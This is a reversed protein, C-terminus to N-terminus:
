IAKAPLRLCWYTVSMSALYLIAFVANLWAMWDHVDQFQRLLVFLLVAKLSALMALNVVRIGTQGRAYLLEAQYETLNRLAPLLGVLPLLVVVEAVNAGLAKPFFHLFITLAAFALTSVLFIGGELGLRIKRSALLNPSRMLKQVLMMNFSRIPLATLDLLRM